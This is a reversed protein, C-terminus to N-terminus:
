RIGNLLNLMDKDVCSLVINEIEESPKNACNEMKPSLLETAGYNHLALTPDIFKLQTPEKLIFNLPRKQNLVRNTPLSDGYEDEVGMNAFIKDKDASIEEPIKIANKVGTASVICDAEKMAQRIEVDSEIQAFRSAGFKKAINKVRAFDAVIVNAGRRASAIIIGRGVKGCGFVLITKKFVDSLALKELARAFGDGTGLTTEFEKTLSNDAVFVKKTSNEYKIAGTRTLESFGITPNLNSFFAGCDLIIDFNENKTTSLLTISFDPLSKFISKDAISFPADSVFLKAGAAMLAAYKPFTNEFVPTADLIKMDKLPKSERWKAYQDALAPFDDVPSYKTSAINYLKEFSEM